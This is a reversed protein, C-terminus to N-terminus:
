KKSKSKYIGVSYKRGWSSRTGICAIRVIKSRFPKLNGNKNKPVGYIASEGVQSLLYKSASSWFSYYHEEEMCKLLDDFISGSKAAWVGHRDLEFLLKGVKDNRPDTWLDAVPIVHYKEAIIYM